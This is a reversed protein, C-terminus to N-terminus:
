RPPKGAHADRHAASCYWGATGSLAEGKPLHVGCHPCAVMEEGPTPQATPPSAAPAAEDGPLARRGGRVLWVVALILGLALLFRM